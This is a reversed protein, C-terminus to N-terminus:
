RVFAKFCLRQDCRSVSYLFMHDPVPLGPLIHESAEQYLSYLRFHQNWGDVQVITLM